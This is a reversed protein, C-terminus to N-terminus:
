RFCNGGSREGQASFNVTMSQIKKCAMASAGPNAIKAM